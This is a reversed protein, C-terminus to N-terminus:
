LPATLAKHFAQIRARRVTYGYACVMKQMSVNYIFISNSLHEILAWKSRAYCESLMHSKSSDAGLFNLSSVNRREATPRHQSRKRFAKKGGTIITEKSTFLFCPVCHEYSHQWTHWSPNKKILYCEKTAVVDLERLHENRFFQCLSSTAAVHSCCSSQQHKTAYTNETTLCLLILNPSNQTVVICGNSNFWVLLM